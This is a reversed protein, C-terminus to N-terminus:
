EIIFMVTQINELQLLYIGNSLFSLDEMLISTDAYGQSVVKGSTNTIFYNGIKDKGASITVKGNTPNPYVTAGIKKDLSRVVSYEVAGDTDVLKLRYYNVGPLPMLDVFSYSVLHSSYGAAQVAGIEEWNLGDSSRQISTYDSRYETATNWILLGQSSRYDEVDFSLLEVPLAGNSSACDQCGTNMEIMFGSTTGGNGDIMVFYTEGTTLGSLNFEANASIGNSYINGATVIGGGNTSRYSSNNIAEDDPCGGSPVTYTGSACGGSRAFVLLQSDSSSASSTNTLGSVTLYATAASAKFYFWASNNNAGNWSCGGVTTGPFNADTSSYGSNTGLVLAKNDVCTAASCADNANLSTIDTISYSPGFVLDIREFSIETATNEVIELTWTGNPNEGNVLSFGGATPIRYYGISYPFYDGQVSSAYSNLTKLVSLDRLKVNLWQSTTSTSIPSFLSIITGSPSKLRVNYTNLQQKCTSKGLQINVQKLEVQNSATGLTSLGSVAIGKTLATAWANGSNWTDCDSITTNSFTQGKLGMSVFTLMSLLATKTLLKYDSRLM